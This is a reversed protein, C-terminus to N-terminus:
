KEETGPLRLQDEHFERAFCETEMRLSVRLKDLTAFLRKTECGNESSDQRVKM